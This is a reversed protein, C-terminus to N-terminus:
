KPAMESLWKKVEEYRPIRGQSVVKGNVIVAPTFLAGYKAMERPDTVHQVDAKIGLEALANMVLKETELCRPCGPGLIKVTALANTSM